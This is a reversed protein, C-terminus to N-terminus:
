SCAWFFLSKFGNMRSVFSCEVVTKEDDKQAGLFAKGGMLYPDIRAAGKGGSAQRIAGYSALTNSPESAEAKAM